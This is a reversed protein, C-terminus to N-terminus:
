DYSATVLRNWILPMSAVDVPWTTVWDDNDDEDDDDDNEAAAAAAAASVLKGRDVYVPINGAGSGSLRGAGDKTGGGGGGGGPRESGLKGRALSIVDSAGAVNV